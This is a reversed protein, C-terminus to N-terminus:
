GVLESVCEGFVRNHFDIDEATTEPSVLAMNHFPSLLIGRNILFLHIFRDLETDIAAKAEAGNRFPTPHFRYEVRCGLRAVHWPLDTANIVTDIGNALREALPSMRDYASKTMIHELTARIAAIELSNCSLTTGLALFAGEERWRMMFKEAVEQSLGIVAAPIGGGIPKGLTLVDPKLNWAGTLGAPGACITHTEDIILLTGFRRTMERLAAHYGPDPYIIGENTMVPECLVCAIDQSSLAAELADLDNFEIVRSMSEPNPLLGLSGGWHCVVGDRLEVMAEDVGGHYCGNFVLTLKRKTIERALKIAFRNADTATLYIQWYPLHLRRTLEEGVWISDETPLMLTTGRGLQNMVADVMATPSHGLMAGSDALCLDLYRHGDVDTLYTGKAEKAYPPFPGAWRSMRMLPVSGLLSASAREFLAQSKPREAVYREEEREMLMEIRSRDITTM